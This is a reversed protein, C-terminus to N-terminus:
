ALEAEIISDDARATGSRKDLAIGMGLLLQDLDKMTIYKACTGHYANSVSSWNAILVNLLRLAARASHCTLGILCDSLAIEAAETYVAIKDCSPKGVRPLIVAPGKIVRTPAEVYRAPIRIAHGYVDTTHVVPTGSSACARHIPIVGRSVSVTTHTPVHPQASSSHPDSGTLGKKFLIAVTASSCRQFTGRPYEGIIELSGTERLWEVVRFDKQSSLVNAPLIGLLLGRPALYRTAIAVFALARGAELTHDKGIEVRWTTGGRYSYPPNALVLAINGSVTRLTGSASRSRANLFDCRGLTWEPEAKALRTLAARCVDTAVISRRPWRAKAQRLLEGGGAAFDAIQGPPITPLMSVLQKALPAPTYFADIGTSSDVM